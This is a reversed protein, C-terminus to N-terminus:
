SLAGGKENKKYCNALNIFMRRVTVDSRPRPQKHLAFDLLWVALQYRGAGIMEYCVSNLYEFADNESEGALKKWAVFSLTVGFETLVDVSKHLYKPNLRLTKGTEMGETPFGISKCRAIYEENVTGSAHAVRNRREFVEVFNPWRSYHSKIKTDILKELYEVQEEHSGRLLKDVETEIFAQRAKELDGIEFLERYTVTKDSNQLREPKLAILTRVADGILSDFTAVLSLLISAPLLALGANMERMRKYERGIEEYAEPPLSYVVGGDVKKVLTGKAEAVGKIGRRLTAQQLGDRMFGTIAILQHYSSLAKDFKIMLDRCSRASSSLLELEEESEMNSSDDAPAEDVDDGSAYRVAHDVVPTIMFANVEDKDDLRLGVYGEIKEENAM